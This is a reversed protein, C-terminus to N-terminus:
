EAVGLPPPTRSFLRLPRDKHGTRLALSPTLLGPISRCPIRSLRWQGVRFTTCSRQDEREIGIPTDAWVTRSLRHRCVGSLSKCGESCSHARAIAGSPTS